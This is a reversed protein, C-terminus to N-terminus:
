QQVAGRRAALWRQPAAVCRRHGGGWYERRVRRPPPRRLACGRRAADGVMAAASCRRCRFPPSPPHPRLRRMRGECVHALAGGRRYFCERFNWRWPRQLQLKFQMVPKRYDNLARGLEAFISRIMHLISDSWYVWRLGWAGRIQEFCQPPLFITLVEEDAAHHLSKAIWWQSRLTKTNKAAGLM